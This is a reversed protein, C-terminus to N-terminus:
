IGKMLTPPRCGGNARRPEAEPQFARLHRFKPDITVPFGGYVRKGTIRDIRVM